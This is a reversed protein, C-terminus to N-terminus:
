HRKLLASKENEDAKERIYEILRDLVSYVEIMKGRKKRIEELKVYQQAKQVLDNIPQTMARMIIFSCFASFLCAAIIWAWIVGTKIPALINSGIALALLSTLLVILPVIM